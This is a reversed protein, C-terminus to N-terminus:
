NKFKHYIEVGLEKAKKEDDPNSSDVHYKELNPVVIGTGPTIRDPHGLIKQNELYIYPWFNFNGYYERAMTILFRSRTVTDLALYDSQLTPAGDAASAQTEAPSEGTTPNSESIDSSPAVSVVEKEAALVKEAVPINGNREIKHPYLFYLLLFGGLFLAVCCLTGWLLAMRSRRKSKHDFADVKGDVRQIEESLSEVEAKSALSDYEEKTIYFTDPDPTSVIDEPEPTGPEPDDPDIPGFPEVPEIEGFEKELEEGLEEGPTEEPRDTHANEPIINSSQNEESADEDFELIELWSFEHNVKEALSKAPMFTVKFHSPIELDEGTSVNKSKRPEMKVVKFTGLGKIKVSDAHALVDSLVAFFSKLFNESNKKSNASVQSIATIIEPLLLKDSM